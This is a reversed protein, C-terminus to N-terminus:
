EKKLGSAIWGDVIKKQGDEKLRTNLRKAKSRVTAYDDFPLKAFVKGGAFHCPTCNNKLLPAIDRKFTYAEGQLKGDGLSGEGGNSVFSPLFSITLFLITVVFLRVLTIRSVRQSNDPSESKQM